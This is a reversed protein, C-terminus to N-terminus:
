ADTQVRVSASEAGTPVTVDIREHEPDPTGTIPDITRASTYANPSAAIRGWFSEGLQFAADIPESGDWDSQAGLYAHGDYQANTQGFGHGFISFGDGERGSSPRVFWIHPTPVSNDVDGEYIYPVAERNVAVEMGINEYVWDVDDRVATLTLGINEYVFDVDERSPVIPMGINEYVYHIANPGSITWRNSSSKATAKGSPAEVAYDFAGPVGGVATAQGSPATVTIAM